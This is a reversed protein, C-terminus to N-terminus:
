YIEYFPNTKNPSELIIPPFSYITEELRFFDEGIKAITLEKGIFENMDEIWVYNGGSEWEKLQSKEPKYITIKDGKKFQTKLLNENKRKM